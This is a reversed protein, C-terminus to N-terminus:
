SSHECLYMLVAGPVHPVHFCCPNLSVAGLWGWEVWTLWCSSLHETVETHTPAPPLPPM